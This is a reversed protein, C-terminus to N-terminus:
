LCEGQLQSSLDIQSVGGRKTDQFDEDSEIAGKHGYNLGAEDGSSSSDSPPGEAFDAEEQVDEPKASDVLNEKPKEQAVMKPQTKPPQSPIMTDIQEEKNETADAPPTTAPM